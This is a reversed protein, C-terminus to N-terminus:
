KRDRRLRRAPTCLSACPRIGAAPTPTNRPRDAVVSVKSCCSPTGVPQALGTRKVSSTSASAQLRRKSHRRAPNRVGCGNRLSPATISTAAPKSGKQQAQTSNKTRQYAQVLPACERSGPDGAAPTKCCCDPFF